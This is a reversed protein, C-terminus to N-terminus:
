KMRAFLYWQLIAAFLETILIAVIAGLIGFQWLLLALLGVRVIPVSVSIIYLERKRQHAIFVQTVLSRPVSLVSLALLQSYLVAEPYLPFLIKFIIPAALIYLSVAGLAVLFYLRIKRPLALKLEPISRKAFKPFALSRVFGFITQLHIVPLQALAYAALPAGGLFFWILVKDVVNAAEALSEMVSLHKGYSLLEVDAERTLKYRHVVYWYACFLSLASSVFYGLILFLPDRSVLLIGLVVAFPVLRQLTEIVVSERFLERAQLYWKYLNFGIIFPQLAGV